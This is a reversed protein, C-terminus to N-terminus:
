ILVTRTDSIIEARELETLSGITEDFPNAERISEAAIAVIAADLGTRPNPIRVNRRGGLSTAFTLVCTERM